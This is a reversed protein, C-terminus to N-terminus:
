RKKGGQAPLLAWRHHRMVGPRGDWKVLYESISHRASVIRGEVSIAEPYAYRVRCGVRYYRNDM